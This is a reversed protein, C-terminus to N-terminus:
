QDSGNGQELPMYITFTTERPRSECEIIGGHQSIINQAISLGLGSGEARGSIMPYYMREFLEPDVGPGNDTIDVRAVIKHRVQGITFQRVIRTRLNIKADPTDILAQHANRVINLVAQIMQELDAEM